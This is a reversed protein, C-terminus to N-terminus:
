QRLLRRSGAPDRGHRPRDRNPRACCIRRESARGYIFSPLPRHRDLRFPDAVIESLMLVGHVLSPMPM